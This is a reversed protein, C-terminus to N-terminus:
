WTRLFRYSRSFYSQAQIFVDNTNIQVNFSLRKHNLKLQRSLVIVQLKIQTNIAYKTRNQDKVVLYQQETRCLKCHNGHFHMKKKIAFCQWRFKTSISYLHFWFFPDTNLKYLPSFLIWSMPSISPLLSRNLIVFIKQEILIILIAVRFYMLELNWIYRIITPRNHVIATTSFVKASGWCLHPFPLHWM